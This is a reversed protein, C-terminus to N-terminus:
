FAGPLLLGGCLKFVQCPARIILPIVLFIVAAFQQLLLWM